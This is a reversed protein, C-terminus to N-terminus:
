PTLVYSVSHDASDMSFGKYHLMGQDVCYHYDGQNMSTDDPIMRVVGPSPLEYQGRDEVRKKIELSCDCGGGISMLCNVQARPEFLEITSEIGMCSGVFTVCSAPVEIDVSYNDTLSRHYSMTSTFTITGTAVQLENRLVATQCAASVMGISSPDLCGETYKWSGELNGGCADAEAFTPNCLSVSIGADQETMGSDTTQNGADLNVGADPLGNGNADQESSIGTDEGSTAGTDEQAAADQGQTKM